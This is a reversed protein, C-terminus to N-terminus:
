RKWAGAIERDTEEVKNASAKLANSIEDILEKAKVFNPRLEAFKTSFGESADGEWEGRLIGLLNDMKGIIDQLNNAQTTFESARQRMAEPTMRIQGM